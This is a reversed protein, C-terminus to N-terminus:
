ACVRVLLPTNYMQIIESSATHLSFNMKFLSTPGWRKRDLHFWYMALYYQLYKRSIGKYTKGIFDVIHIITEELEPSLDSPVLPASASVGQPPNSKNATKPRSFHYGAGCEILDDLELISIAEFLKSISIGLEESLQEIPTPQETLADYLIKEVGSLSASPEPQSQTAGTAASSSPSTRTPKTGPQMSKGTPNAQGNKTEEYMVAEEAIPRLKAPTEISRKSVVSAFYSSPVVVGLQSSEMVESVTAKIGTHNRWATDYSSKTLYELDSASFIAGNEALWYAAFKFRIKKCNRFQSNATISSRAKCDLCKGVRDGPRRFIATSGCLRCSLGLEGHLMLNLGEICDAETRYQRKFRRWLSLLKKITASKEAATFKAHTAPM